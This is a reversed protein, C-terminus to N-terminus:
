FDVSMTGSMAWVVSVEAGVRVGRAAAGGHPLLLVVRLRGVAAGFFAMEAEDDFVAAAEV